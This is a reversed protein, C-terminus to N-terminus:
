KGGLFSSMMDQLMNGQKQVIQVGFYIQGITNIRASWGLDELIDSYRKYLVRFNKANDDNARQVTFILLQLYNIIKFCSNFGNENSEDLDIIECDKTEIFNFKSIRDTQKLKEIMIKCSGIADKVNHLILFPIVLRGLYYGFTQVTDKMYSEFALETLLTLAKPDNSLFLYNESLNILEFNESYYLKEGIKFNIKSSEILPILLSNLSKSIEKSITLLNPDTDPLLSLIETLKQTYSRQRESSLETETNFVEIMYLSLDSAEDYKKNEMLIMSSQYLLETAADYNKANVYRSTISRITQEAEYYAGSEIRTKFRDLSKQLKAAQSM